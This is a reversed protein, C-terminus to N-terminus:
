LKMVAATAGSQEHLPVDCQECAFAGECNVHGCIHCVEGCQQRSFPPQATQRRNGTCCRYAESPDPTLQSHLRKPFPCNQHGKVRNRRCNQSFHPPASM